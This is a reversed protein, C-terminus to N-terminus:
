AQPDARGFTNEYRARRVSAAYASTVTFQAFVGLEARHWNNATPLPDQGHQPDRRTRARRPQLTRHGARALTPAHRTDARKVPHHDVHVPVLTIVRNGVEVGVM